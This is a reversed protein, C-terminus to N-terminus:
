PHAPLPQVYHPNLRMRGNQFFDVPDELLSGKMQSTLEKLGKYMRKRYQRAERSRVPKPRLGDSDDANNRYLNLYTFDSHGYSVGITQSDDGWDTLGTFGAYTGNNGSIDAGEGMMVGFKTRIRGKSLRDLVQRAMRQTSGSAVWDDLVLVNPRKSAKLMKKVDPALYKETAELSNSKSFRRFMLTGDATPFRGYLATYLKFVALGIMRAGRDSAIVFDPRTERIYEVIPLAFYGINDANIETSVGLNFGTPSYILNMYNSSGFDKIYKELTTLKEDSADPLLYKLYDEKVIKSELSFNKGTEKRPNTLLHLDYDSRKKLSEPKLLLSELDGEDPHKRVKGSLQNSFFIKYSDVLIQFDADSFKMYKKSDAPKKKTKDPKAM